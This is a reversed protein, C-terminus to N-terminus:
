CFFVVLRGKKDLQIGVLYVASWRVPGMAASCTKSKRASQVNLISPTLDDTTPQNLAVLHSINPKKASPEPYLINVLLYREKVRVM